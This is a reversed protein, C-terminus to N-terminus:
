PEFTITQTQISSGNIFFNFDLDGYTPITSYVNIQKTSNAGITFVFDGTHEKEILLTGATTIDSSSTNELEIVIENPIITPFLSKNISVVSNFNIAVSSKLTLPTKDRMFNLDYAMDSETPTIRNAM